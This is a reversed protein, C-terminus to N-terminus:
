AGQIKEGDAKQKRVLRRLLLDDAMALVVLAGKVGTNYARAHLAREDTAHAFQSLPLPSVRFQAHARSLSQWRLSRPAKFRFHECLWPIM